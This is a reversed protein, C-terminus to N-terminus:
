VLLLLCLIGKVAMSVDIGFRKALGFGFRKSIGYAYFSYEILFM